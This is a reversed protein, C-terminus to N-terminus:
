GTEDSVRENPPAPVDAIRVYSEHLDEAQEMLAKTRPNRLADLVLEKGAGRQGSPRGVHSEVVEGGCEERNMQEVLAFAAERNEPTDEYRVFSTGFRQNVTDIVVGFDSVVTEFPAVVVRGAVPQATRHFDLYELVADRPTLDPWREVYSSVADFPRRVLLVAPVGFRVARVLHQAGHLHRGIHPDPGNAVIFAAVSYTNGSRQYGEIVIASDRRVLTSRKDPRALMTADWLYPTRVV